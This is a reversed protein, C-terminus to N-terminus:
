WLAAQLGLGGGHATLLPVARLGTPASSAGGGFVLLGGGILAVVGGAALLSVGLADYLKGTNITGQASGPCQQKTAGCEGTLTTVEQGRLVWFVVGGAVLAAGGGLAAWALTHSSSSPAPTLPPPEPPPAPTPTSTPTPTPTPTPTSTSTPTSTPTPGPTPTATIRAEVADLQARSAAAVNELGQAQAREAAARLEDRAEVLKGLHANCIGLHYLLQPTEKQAATRADVLESVAKEYLGAEEDVLAQKFAREARARDGDSQAFASDAVTTTAAAIMGSVLTALVARMSAM